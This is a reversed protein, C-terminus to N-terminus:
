HTNIVAPCTSRSVALRPKHPSTQGDRVPVRSSGPIVDAGGKKGLAPLPAVLNQPLSCPGVIKKHSLRPSSPLSSHSLAIRVCLSQTTHLRARGIFPSPVSLPNSCTPFAIKQPCTFRLFFSCSVGPASSSASFSVDSLSTPPPPRAHLCFPHHFGPSTSALSFVTLM